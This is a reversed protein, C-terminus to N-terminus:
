AHRFEEYIKREQKEAKRASIIRVSDNTSISIVFLRYSKPFILPYIDEFGDNRRIGSDLYKSSSNLSFYMNERSGPM